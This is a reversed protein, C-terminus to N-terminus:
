SVALGGAKEESSPEGQRGSPVGRRTSKTNGQSFTSSWAACSTQGQTCREGDKRGCIVEEPSSELEIDTDGQSGLVVTGVARGTKEEPERKRM